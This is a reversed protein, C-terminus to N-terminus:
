YGEKGISIQKILKERVCEAGYQGTFNFESRVM